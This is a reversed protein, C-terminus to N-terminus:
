ASSNLGEGSSMRAIYASLLLLLTFFSFVSAIAILLRGFFFVAASSRLSGDLAAPFAFFVALIFVGFALLARVRGHTYYRIVLEGFGATRKKMFLDDGPSIESLTAQNDPRSYRPQVFFRLFLSTRLATRLSGVDTGEFSVTERLARLAGLWATGFIVVLGALVLAAHAEALPFKHSQAAVERVWPLAVFPKLAPSLWVYVDALLKLEAAAAVTVLAILVGITGYFATVIKRMRESTGLM